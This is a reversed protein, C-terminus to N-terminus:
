APHRVESDVRGTLTVDTGHVHVTGGQGHVTATGYAHVTAQESVRVYAAGSATVSAQGKVYVKGGTVNDVRVGGEAYVKGGTVNEVVAAGVADVRGGAVTGISASGLLDARGGSVTIIRANGAASAVGGRLVTIEGAPLVVEGIVDVEGVSGDTRVTAKGGSVKAIFGGEIQVDGGVMRMLTAGKQLTVSGSKMTTIVTGEHATLIGGEVAALPQADTWAFLHVPSAKHFATVTLPEAKSGGGPQFHLVSSEKLSADLESQTYITRLGVDARKERPVRIKGAPSNGPANEVVARHRKDVQSLRGRDELPLHSMFQPILETLLDGYSTGTISTCALWLVPSSADIQALLGDCQHPKGDAVDQPTVPCTEATGSCLYLFDPAEVGPWFKTYLDLEHHKRLADSTLAETYRLTLNPMMGNVVVSDTMETFQGLVSPHNDSFSVGNGMDACVEFHAGPFPVQDPLGIAGPSEETSGIGLILYHMESGDM